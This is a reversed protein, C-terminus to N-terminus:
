SRNKWSLFKHKKIKKYIFSREQKNCGIIFIIFLTYLISLISILLFSMFNVVIYQNLYLPLIASVVSVMLVNCFVHTFFDYLSIGTEHRLMVLRIWLGIQSLLISVVFISTPPCDLWLLTFSIPLNLLQLAGATLQFYKIKGTALMATIISHSLCESLAFILVLRVFDATYEPYKGLWIQLVYEINIMIPLAILFLIYFSIRAGQKVLNITYSINNEAYSKTIQPNLATM